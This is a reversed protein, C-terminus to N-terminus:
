DYEWWKKTAKPKPWMDDEWACLVRLQDHRDPRWEIFGKDALGRLADRVAASTRGSKIAIEKIEPPKGRLQVLNAVIRLVKRETDSLM